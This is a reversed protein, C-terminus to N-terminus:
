EVRNALFSFFERWKKMKDSTFGFCISFREYENELTECWNRTIVELKSQNMLNM